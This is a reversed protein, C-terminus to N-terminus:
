HAVCKAAGSQLQKLMNRGAALDPNFALVREVAAQSQELHGSLCLGRALNLGLGSRGPIREFASTWLTIARDLHGANAEMVALNSAADISLPDLRLAHEYHERAIDLKGERQEHFAQAALIARDEPNQELAKPLLRGAQESAFKSNGALVVWALAIDRSYEAGEAASGASDGGAADASASDDKVTAPFRVLKAESPPVNAPDYASGVNQLPMLPVRLIRHDTAQTHAVDVTTIRPMHCQACDGQEVHHKAALLEGHCALCKGRYFAVKEAPSPTFHPDHCSTCTMAEGATRKCKSQALAEFQSVARVRDKGDGTLVFYRVFDSLDDGPQFQYLHKGPQEIAANGELHCQMCVADRRLPSLKDPNVISLNKNAGAPSLNQMQAIHLAGAGHCRECTIGAHAFLPSDYKNETGAIPPQANSTHCTLCSSAAPLNLPMERVQQYAPAMDWTGNPAKQSYLNIPSEFVFGDDAFLFTKGRHGSGIFYLLQRKGHLENNADGSAARDFSLWAEGNELYVRYSVASPAHQFQGPAFDQTAPGSARAMATTAYSASIKAHCKACAASGTFGPAPPAPSATSKAPTGAGPKAKSQSYTGPSLLVAGLLLPLASRLGPIKM